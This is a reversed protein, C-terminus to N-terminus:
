KALEPYQGLIYKRREEGLNALVKTLFSPDTTIKDVLFRRWEEVNSDDFNLEAKKFAKIAQGKYVLTIAKKGSDIETAWNQSSKFRPDVSATRIIFDEGTESDKELKWIFETEVDRFLDFAIRSFRQENGAYKLRSASAQKVMAPKEVALSHLQALDLDLTEKSRM